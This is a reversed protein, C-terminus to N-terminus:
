KSSAAPPQSGSAPQPATTAPGTSSAPAPAAAQQKNINVKAQSRLKDVYAQVEQSRLQQEISAKVDSLKPKPMKRVDQLLIVHWGFRTKVPQRTYEGKKLNEVAEAFPKVMDSPSFWGLEGGNKASPGTSMKKALKAFDAGHNLKDIAKEATKKDNVLIHRAKYEKQDMSQVQKQYAQQVDQDSIPNQQIHQQVLAKALLSDSQLRMETQIEPKRALGQQRAQQALVKLDILRDLLEHRIQPSPQIGHGREKIINDITDQHIAEGNVTALVPSNDKNASTSSHTNGSDAVPNSNASGNNNGSGNCAALALSAAIIACVSLLKFKM